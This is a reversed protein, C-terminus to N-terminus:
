WKTQEPFGISLSPFSGVRGRVPPFLHVSSMKGIRLVYLRDGFRSFCRCQARISEAKGDPHSPAM